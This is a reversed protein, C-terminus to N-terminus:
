WTSCNKELSDDGSRFMMNSPSKLKGSISQDQGSM